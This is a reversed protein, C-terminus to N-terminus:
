SRAAACVATSRRGAVRAGQARRATRRADVGRFRDARDAGPRLRGVVFLTGVDARLYVIPNPLWGSNLILSLGVGVVIPLLLLILGKHKM